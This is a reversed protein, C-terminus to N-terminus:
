IDRFPEEYINGISIRHAKLCPNVQGNALIRAFNWGVYCPQKSVIDSEYFGSEVFDSSIRKSLGDVYVINTKVPVGKNYEELRKLQSSIDVSIKDAQEKNLLLVDTKGSITDILPFEVSDAKVDIALDVMEKIENYNSNFMVYYLNIHPLPHYLHQGKKQKLLAIYNLVEKIKYFDEERKNPHVLGYTQATGSLLSVHIHDIKFDVIERARKKDIFNFNTNVAVRMGSEKAFSLIEMAKPHIFPEGGGAFFLTKTGMEKLESIVKKVLVFPLEKEKEKKREESPDGLLPSNNWCCLCNNDCRNTIDFQVIEPGVFAHSGDLIGKLVLDGDPINKM